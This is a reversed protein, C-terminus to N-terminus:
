ITRNHCHRNYGEFIYRQKNEIGHQPRRVGGRRRPGARRQPQGRERAAARVVGDRALRRRRHDHRLLRRVRHAPRERFLAGGDGGLEGGGVGPERQGDVGGFHGGLGPVGGGGLAGEGEGDGQRVSHQRHAALDGVQDLGRVVDGDGLLPRALEGEEARRAARGGRREGGDAAAERGEGAEGAGLDLLQGAVGAPLRVELRRDEGGHPRHVPAHQPLLRRDLRDVGPELGADEALLHRPEVHDRDPRLDLERVRRVLADV